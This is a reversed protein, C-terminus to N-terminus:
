YGSGREDEDDLEDLYHLVETESLQLKEAIAEIDEGAHRHMNEIQIETRRDM